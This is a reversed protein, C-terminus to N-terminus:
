LKFLVLPSSRLNSQAYPCAPNATWRVFFFSSKNPAGPVRSHAPLIVVKLSSCLIFKNYMILLLATQIPVGTYARHNLITISLIHIPVISPEIQLSTIRSKGLDEHSSSLSLNILLEDTVKIVETLWKAAAAANFGIKVCQIYRWQLKWNSYLFIPIYFYLFLSVYKGNM